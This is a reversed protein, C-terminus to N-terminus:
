LGWRIPLTGLTTSPPRAFLALARRPPLVSPLDGARPHGVLIPSPHIVAVSPAGMIMMPGVEGALTHSSARCSPSVITARADSQQRPQPSRHRVTPMGRVTTTLRSPPTTTTARIVQGNTSTKMALRNKRRQGRRSLSCNRGVSIDAVSRVTSSRPQDLVLCHRPMGLVKRRSCASTVRVGRAQCRRPPDTVAM